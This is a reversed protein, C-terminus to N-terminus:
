VIVKDALKVNVGVNLGVYWDKQSRGDQKGGGLEVNAVGQGQDKVAGTTALGVLGTDVILDRTSSSVPTTTTTLRANANPPTVVRQRSSSAAASSPAGGPTSTMTPGTSTSSTLSVSTRSSSGASSVPSMAAPLFEAPRRPTQNPQQPDRQYHRQHQLSAADSVSRMNLRTLSDSRNVQNGGGFRNSTGAGGSNRGEGEGGFSDSPPLDSFVSSNDPESSCCTAADGGRSASSGPRSSQSSAYCDAVGM